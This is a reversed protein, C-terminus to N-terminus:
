TSGIFVNYIIREEFPRASESDAQNIIRKCHVFFFPAVSFNLQASM